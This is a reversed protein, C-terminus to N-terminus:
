GARNVKLLIGLRPIKGYRLGLPAGREVQWRNDNKIEAVFLNVAHDLDNRPRGATIVWDIDGSPAVVRRAAGNFLKVMFPCEKLKVVLGKILSHEDFCLENLHQYGIARDLSVLRNSELTTFFTWESRHILKLNAV